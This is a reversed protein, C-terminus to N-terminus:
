CVKDKLFIFRVLGLGHRGGVMLGVVGGGRGLCNFSVVQFSPLVTM